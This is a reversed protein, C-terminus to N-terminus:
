AIIHSRLIVTSDFGLFWIKKDLLFETLLSLLGTQFLIHIQPPRPKVTTSIQESLCLSTSWLLAFRSPDENVHMSRLAGVVNGTDEMVMVDFKAKDEAFRSSYLPKNPTNTKTDPAVISPVPNNSADYETTTVASNSDTLM